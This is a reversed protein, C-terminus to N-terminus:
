KKTTKKEKTVPKVKVTKEKVVEPRVPMSIVLSLTATTTADGRRVSNKQITTFGSKRGGMAPVILDFLKNASKANSLDAVIRRRDSLTGDVAKSALRDFLRKIVKAKVVTTTLTGHEILQNLQSKFLSSRQKTNRGLKALKAHHRRSM